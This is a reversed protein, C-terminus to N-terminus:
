SKREYSWITQARARCRPLQDAPPTATTSSLLSADRRAEKKKKKKKKISLLGAAATGAHSRPPLALPHDQKTALAHKRGPEGKFQVPQTQVHVLVFRSYPMNCAPSACVVCSAPHPPRSTTNPAPTPLAATRLRGGGRFPVAGQVPLLLVCVCVCVSRSRPGHARSAGPLAAGRSVGPLAAGRSAGPLAAGRSVGPLAAGRSVGPL